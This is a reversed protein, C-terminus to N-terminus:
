AKRAEILWVHGSTNGMTQFIRLGAAEILNRYEELTRERGGNYVMQMLDSAVLGMAYPEITLPDPLARQIVLVRSSQKMARACAALIKHATPEDWDHIINRLIYVDAGRPIARRFDGAVVRCRSLVGEEALFRRAKEAVLPRDVLIGNLAPRSNLIAALLVGEGGGV